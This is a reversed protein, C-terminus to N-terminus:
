ALSFISQFEEALVGGVMATMCEGPLVWWYDNRAKSFLLKRLFYLKAFDTHIFLLPYFVEASGTTFIFM